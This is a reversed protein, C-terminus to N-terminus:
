CPVAERKTLLYLCFSGIIKLNSKFSLAETEAQRLHTAPVGRRHEDQWPDRPLHGLRGAAELLKGLMVALIGGRVGRFPYFFAVLLNMLVALNFSISSWFSM